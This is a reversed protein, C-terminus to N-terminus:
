RPQPHWRWAYWCILGTIFSELLAYFVYFARWASISTGAILLMVATFFLGCAINLIRNLRRETIISLFVMLAPVSLLVAAMFLKAPSNLISVGNIIGDVKAPVYLEFYDAYLYCLTVSTWLAALKIQVPISNRNFDSISRQM